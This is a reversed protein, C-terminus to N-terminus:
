KKQTPTTERVRVLSEFVNDETIVDEKEELDRRLRDADETRANFNGSFIHNIGLLLIVMAALIVIIFVAKLVSITM